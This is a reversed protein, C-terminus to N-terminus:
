FPLFTKVSTSSTICFTVAQERVERTRRANEKAAKELEARVTWCNENCNRNLAGARSSQTAKPQMDCRAMRVTRQGCRYKWPSWLLITEGDHSPVEEVDPLNWLFVSHKVPMLVDKEVLQDKTSRM